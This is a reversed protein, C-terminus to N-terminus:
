PEVFGARVKGWNANNVVSQAWLVKNASGTASRENQLM